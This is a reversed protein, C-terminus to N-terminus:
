AYPDEAARQADVRHLYRAFFLGSGAVSTLCLCLFAVTYPWSNSDSSLLWTYCAATALWLWVAYLLNTRGEQPTRTLYLWTMPLWSLAGLSLAPTLILVIRLPKTM